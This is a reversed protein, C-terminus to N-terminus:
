HSVFSAAPSACVFAVCQANKIAVDCVTPRDTMLHIVSLPLLHKKAAHSTTTIAYRQGAPKCNQTLLAYSPCQTGTRPAAEELRTGTRSFTIRHLHIITITKTDKNM